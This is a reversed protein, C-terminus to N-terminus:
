DIYEDVESEVKNMTEEKTIGKQIENPECKNIAEQLLSSLSELDKRNEKVRDVSELVEKAESKLLNKDALTMLAVDKGAERFSTVATEIRKM